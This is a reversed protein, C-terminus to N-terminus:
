YLQEMLSVFDFGESIRLSITAVICIAYIARGQPMVYPITTQALLVRGNGPTVDQGGLWCMQAADDNTITIYQFPRSANEYILSPTVNNITFERTIAPSSPLCNAVLVELLKDRYRSSTLGPQTDFSGQQRLLVKIEELSQAIQYNLQILQQLENAM